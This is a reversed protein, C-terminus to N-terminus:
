HSRRSTRSLNLRISTATTKVYCHHHAKAAGLRFGNWGSPARVPDEHESRFVTYIPEPLGPRAIRRFREAKGPKMSVFASGARKASLRAGPMSVLSFARPASRDTLLINRIVPRPSVSEVIEPGCVERSSFAGIRWAERRWARGQFMAAEGRSGDRGAPFVARPRGSRNDDKPDNHSSESLPWPLPVRDRREPRTRGSEHAERAGADPNRVRM